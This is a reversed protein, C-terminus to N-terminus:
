CILLSCLSCINVLTVIIVILLRFVFSVPSLKHAWSSGSSFVPPFLGVSRESPGYILTSHCVALHFVFRQTLFRLEAHRSQLLLVHVDHLNFSRM